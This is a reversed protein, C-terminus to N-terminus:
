MYVNILSYWTRRCARHKKFEIFGNKELAVLNKDLMHGLSWNCQTSISLEEKFEDNSVEIETGRKKHLLFKRYIFQAYPPLDYIKEDIFDYNLSMINQLFVMGLPTCIHIEYDRSMTYNRDTHKSKIEKVVKLDFICEFDKISYKHLFFSNREFLRVMLNIKFKCDATSKLLNYIKTSTWNRFIRYKRLEFEKLKFILHGNNSVDEITALNLKSSKTLVSKDKSSIPKITTYTQNYIFDSLIDLMMSNEANWEKTIVLPFDPQFDYPFKIKRRASIVPRISFNFARDSRILNSM